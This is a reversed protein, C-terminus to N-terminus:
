ENIVPNKLIGIGEIEAEVEDGPRLFIPPKRAFGVGSPTGTMILTGPLLTMQRSLYSVIRPVSFILDRTSSDQMIKGYTYGFVYALAKEEPINKATKGIVVVLEVEYNVELPAEKPLVIPQLHGTISSTAKLFIVPAPPLEMKSERAHGTYNLGLAIINPPEVPPLFKRVENVSFAIGTEKAPGALPSCDLLHIKEGKLVGYSGNHGTQRSVIKLYKM